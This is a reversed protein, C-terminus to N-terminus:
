AAGELRMLYEAGLRRTDPNPGHLLYLAADFRLREARECRAEREEPSLADLRRQAAALLPGFGCACPTSKNPPTREAISQPTTPHTERAAERTCGPAATESRTM